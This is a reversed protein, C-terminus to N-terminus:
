LFIFLYIFFLFLEELAKLDNELKGLAVDLAAVPKVKEM